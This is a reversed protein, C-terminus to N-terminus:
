GDDAWVCGTRHEPPPLAGSRRIATAAFVGVDDSILQMRMEPLLETLIEGRLARKSHHSRSVAWLSTRRTFASECVGNQSYREYIPVLVQVCSSQLSFEMFVVIRRKSTAAADTAARAPTEPAAIKALSTGIGAPKPILAEVDSEDASRVVTSHRVVAGGTRTAEQSM